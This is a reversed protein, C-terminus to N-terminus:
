YLHIAKGLANEILTSGTEDFSYDVSLQRPMILTHGKLLAEM